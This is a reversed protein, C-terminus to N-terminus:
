SLAIDIAALLDQALERSLSITIKEGPKEQPNQPFVPETEDGPRYLGDDLQGIPILFERMMYGTTGNYEIKAWANDVEELVNVEKNVPVLAIVATSKSPNARMNVTSGSKATVQAIYKAMNTEGEGGNASSYDIIDLEGHFKWNGISNDNKIGGQVTTCHEIVLPNVCRVIGVHYYDRHDPHSAYMEPLNWGSEGPERAKFVLEGEKLSAAGKIPALTKMKNRVTWNTGHNGNWKDGALKVAGIILGICDCTGDSGDGGNRYERIRQMNAESGSQFQKVTQM